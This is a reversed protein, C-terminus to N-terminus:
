HELLEFNGNGRFVTRDPVRSAIAHVSADIEIQLSLVSGKVPVDDVIPVVGTAPALVASDGRTLPLQGVTNVTGVGVTRGDLRASLVRLSFAGGEGLRYSGADASSGRYFVTMLRPQPCNASLTVTQKGLAMTLPSVQRLLLEARTVAGYDVTGSSIQLQCQRDESAGAATPLLLAAVLWAWSLCRHCQSPLRRSRGTPRCEATRM